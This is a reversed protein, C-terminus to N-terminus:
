ELILLLEKETQLSILSRLNVDNIENNRLFDIIHNQLNEEGVMLSDSLITEEFDKDEYDMDDRVQIYCDLANIYEQIMSNLISESNSVNNCIKIGEGIVITFYMVITANPDSYDETDPVVQLVDNYATDLDDFSYYNPSLITAQVIELANELNALSLNYKDFFHKCTRFGRFALLYSFAVQKSKELKILEEINVGNM